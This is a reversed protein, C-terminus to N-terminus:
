YILHFVFVRRQMVEDIDIPAIAYPLITSQSVHVNNLLRSFGRFIFNLQSEDEISNLLKRFINFGQVPSLLYIQTM